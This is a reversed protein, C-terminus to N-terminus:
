SPRYARGQKKRDGPKTEEEEDDFRDAGAKKQM